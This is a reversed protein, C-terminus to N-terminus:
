RKRPPPNASAAAAALREAMMEDVRHRIVTARGRIRALEDPTAGTKVDQLLAWDSESVAHRDRFAHPPPPPPSHKSDQVSPQPSPLTPPYGLPDKIWDRTDDLLQEVTLGLAKAIAAAYMSRRSDRNELASITGVEVEAKEALVELTLGRALRYHRIQKGLAM